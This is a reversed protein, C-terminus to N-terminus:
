GQLLPYSAAGCIWSPIGATGQRLHQMWLLEPAVCFLQIKWSCGAGLSQGQIPARTCQVSDCLVAGTLVSSSLYCFGLVIKFAWTNEDSLVYSFVIGM